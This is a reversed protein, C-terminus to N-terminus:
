KQTKRGRVIKVNNAKEIEDLVESLTKDRTDLSIIAQPDGSELHLKVQSIFSLRQVLQDAPMQNFKWAMRRGSKAERQMKEFTRFDYVGIKVKGRKNLFTLIPWIDSRKLEFNYREKARRPQPEFTIQKKIKASLEKVVELGSKM